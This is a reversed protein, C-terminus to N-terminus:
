INKEVDAPDDPIPMPVVKTIARNLIGTSTKVNIVTVLGDSVPFVELIRGMPWVLPKTNPDKLLVLQNVRLNPNHVSRKARTQLHTLYETSWRNWFKNRLSQILKWLPQSNLVAEIQTVLTTLEEFHMTASKVVRLLIREMSKINAECLGGFHSSTPPIFNWEIGEEASFLQITNSKCIENWDNLINRAGKFNMANDSWIVSPKSRRAIFRRLCTLFAETTLDSVVELHTAKTRQQNRRQPKKKQNWRQLTRPGGTKIRRRKKDYILNRLFHYRVDIHKTRCNEVPSKSYSIAAQNDCFMVNESLELNLSKNDIVNKLWIFEKAAETLSVYEAEMTSLSVSKQKFTRSSIPTEDIFTIFGGMSVRDDRNTAFDSDRAVLRAKYRVIKNNENYKITYVWRNELIKINDPHDVLDWVKHEKMVNIEKDMADRWKSADRSKIAQKHCNPITVEVMLAEQQESLDSFGQSETNDKRFNFLSPDYEINRRKCYREIENFSKLRTTEGEISYYVNSGTVKRGINRIWKVETCPILSHNDSSVDPKESTSPTETSTKSVLRSTLSDKVRDFDDNITEVLKNEDILWIRYGKTRQAYGMMIGIKARMDFKKRIQKPVGAYALCGFPKLHLVSPKRGSYKEFPTKNSDKHCIRNWAYTFCLLAEGWFKHPVESSKFLTKIGDLATLNFREAVGNMEPTYSNTVEHKIGLETLFNDIDKNCFELGGDTRVAIVKRSLFREARKQFRIFTHFVDSKNRIPFVTVKRSYDDIISLFYKNGGQSETPMPGCLDMHLLELPRKSRVAGTKKFSVRKSKALKCPICHTKGNDTLRPLGKVSDNKSTKVLYDNNVHCFRQHWIEISGNKTKATIDSFVLKKVRQYLIIIRSLFYLNEHRTASFLKIWDKNFVNIKGKTGVFHAGKSELRSGSLLNRRLKPNFLVDTLTIEHFSGKYKVRFRLTGIGEVPCSKDETALSMKMNTIPKLDLFLSKGNCFHSTAATDIVWVGKDSNEEFLICSTVLQKDLELLSCEAECFRLNINFETNFTENVNSPSKQLSKKEKCNVKLHGYKNCVYCPGITKISQKVNKITKCNFVKGSKKQYDNKRNPDGHAAATAGPLTKSKKSTFSSLYANEAKELDQKMLQLRNAELILEAEIKVVRFDEEKWRYIQQVTSQFEQPLWRILQFGIYLDDLKHGAEQLRTAVTKVRSIFIGVDERLQLDLKEKYTAEEDPQEPKTQVIFQWCGYHMLIVQMDHKWTNWNNPTLVSIQNNFEMDTVRNLTSAVSNM